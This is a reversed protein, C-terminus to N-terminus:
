LYANAPLPGNEDFLGTTSERIPYSPINKYKNPDLEFKYNQAKDFLKMGVNASKMWYDIGLYPQPVKASIPNYLAAQTGIDTTLESYRPNQNYIMKGADNEGRVDKTLYKPPKTIPPQCGYCDVDSTCQERTISCQSNPGCFNKCSYRTNIPQDVNHNTLPTNNDYLNYSNTDFSELQVYNNKLLYQFWLCIGIFLVVCLLIWLIISYYKM